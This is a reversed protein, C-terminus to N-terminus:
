SQAFKDIEKVAEQIVREQKAAELKSFWARIMDIALDVQALARSHQKSPGYLGTTKTFYISNSKNKCKKWPIQKVEGDISKHGAPSAPNSGLHNTSWFEILESEKIRTIISTLDM